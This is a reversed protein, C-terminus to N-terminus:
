EQTGQGVEFPRLRDSPTKKRSEMLTLMGGWGVPTVCLVNGAGNPGVINVTQVLSSGSKLTVYSMRNTM